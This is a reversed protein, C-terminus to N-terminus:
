AIAASLLLGSTTVAVLLPLVHLAIYRMPSDKEEQFARRSQRGPQKRPRWHAVCCYQALAFYQM